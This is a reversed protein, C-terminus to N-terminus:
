NGIARRAEAIVAPPTLYIKRYLESIQEGSMPDIDLGATKAEKVFEPDRMTAAFANRLAGLRDAPTGPPSAFPRAVAQPALILTLAQRQQETTTKDILMPVEPPVAPDRTLAAQVLIAVKKEEIWARRSARLSSYSFGCMGDVEGREMALAVDNTGPYGSVLKINLGFMVKVLTAFMEPDSGKGLGGVTFQRTRLDEWTKIGATHWAVCTSTDTTISGVWELRTPDFKANEILPAIPLTRGFTGITLGDKAAHSLLFELAKQSGAGPMNQAIVAPNGPIHRGIHRALSRAYIDYGGGASYGIVVSLTKGKYFAEPTQGAAGPIWVAALCVGSLVSTVNGLM